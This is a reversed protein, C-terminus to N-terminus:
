LVQNMNQSHLTEGNGSRLISHIYHCRLIFRLRRDFSMSMPDKDNDKKKKKQNCSSFTQSLSFRTTFLTIISLSLSLKYLINTPLLAIIPFLHRTGLLFPLALFTSFYHMIIEYYHPIYYHYNSLSLSDFVFICLLFFIDCLNLLILNCSAWM